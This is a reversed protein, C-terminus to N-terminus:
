DLSTTNPRNNVKLIQFNRNLNNGSTYNGYSQDENAYVDITGGINMHNTSFPNLHKRGPAQISSYQNPSKM